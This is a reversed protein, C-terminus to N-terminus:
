FLHPLFSTLVLDTISEKGRVYSCHMKLHLVYTIHYKSGTSYNQKWILILNQQTLDHLLIFYHVKVWRQREISKKPEL